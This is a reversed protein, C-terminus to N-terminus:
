ENLKNRYIFDEYAERYFEVEPALEIAKEYSTLADILLNNQEYFGSLIYKNLATNEEIEGSLERLSEEIKGSEAPKLKKIAYTGSKISENNKAVVNILIVNERFLQDSSLDLELYNGKTELSMLEDEFMNTLVVTFSGQANEASDWRIIVNQNYVGSSSPMFLTIEDEEGRHVAGTASLRNKQDEASMKSLVFDAYKSAVSSGGRSVRSELDSVKHTGASKLEITKGSTHILGVYPNESLRIEDGKQLSEGTKLSKWEGNKKVENKGKNALVKFTYNQANSLGVGSFLFCLMISFIKKM